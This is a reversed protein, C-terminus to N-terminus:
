HSDEARNNLRASAKVFVRKINALEPIEAKAGPYSRLQDIVM